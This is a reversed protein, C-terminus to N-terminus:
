IEDSYKYRNKIKIIFRKDRKIYKRWKKNLSEWSEKRINYSNTHIMFGIYSNWQSVTHKLSKIIKEENYNEIIYNMRKIVKKFNSRTSNGTYIRGPKIVYGIFKIGKRIEQVYYKDPHVKVELESELFKISFKRFDHIKKKDESIVYFDDVYRGYNGYFYNSSFIDFEHLYFNAFIQSTLNGIPLGFDDGSYFLSKEPLILKRLGPDGHYECNKEPCHLIILRTLWLIFEQNKKKYNQKLFEIVRRCLINKNIGMFFGSLDMKAVYVEKNYNDSIESIKRSLKNVGYLVGKNERCNYNDEIFVNEFLYEIQRILLHHVIRDRFCAAFVERPKPRTVIFTISIGPKWTKNKLDLYLSRLNMELNEEFEIQKDSNRKHKRCDLYAQYLHDFTLDYTEDESNIIM